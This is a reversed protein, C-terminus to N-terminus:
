GIRVLLRDGNGLDARTASCLAHGVQRRGVVNGRRVSWNREHYHDSGYEATRKLDWATIVYNDRDEASARDLRDTFRIHLREKRAGLEIPADVPGGTFRVRYFGGPQQQNGAWAFMGCVYLHRDTPHFRGRVLGTPFQPIPLECMGGQMQGAIEEHPVVFIKGYGYSLNLLSGALPGWHGAPVWLLEAPSRDFRNTIWCLPQEMAEDSDDTVNHYGFMNGYFRGERVWNIRNKPNWHGEQDTVIFTGDANLCVGNAARFGNAIIDTRQGDRSVRLLTGHHPVIATLAHRASKAYYFNGEADTQLGMAFEHFHETVQHDNNFCRVFDVEGDNDVDELAAIQDRCAVYVTGDVIRVGLPQFLGTVMRTWRLSGNGSTLGSVKWVDGDWSSVAASDGNPFFDFGTPRVRALWPNPTPRTLVDVAFPGEENGTTPATTVAEAFRKPAPTIQEADTRQQSPLATSGPMAGTRQRPSISLKAALSEREQRSALRSLAEEIPTAQQASSLTTFWVTTTLPADGAPITLRLSGDILSWDANFADGQLGVLLFDKSSADDNQGDPEHPETPDNVQPHPSELLVTGGPRRRLRLAARSRQAVQLTLPKARPGFEFHRALVISPSDTLLRPQELIPTTGVRYRLVVQHGQYHLGEYQAWTRPIPGYHRGDRGIVRPAHWDDTGPRAWGPGSKNEVHVTGVIRPHAGHRGDFHIGHFDIFGTGSWAAAMRMTDHDYVMWHRGRTIGGPGPDLRIAIGKYAFNSGDDGIEYTNSLVPGYDMTTWPEMNRPVPGRSTGKPLNALYDPDIPTYESRNHDRLYAERIYHAVDYKQQPVMWSQAQMMGFGRTLTQYISYPDSGNKFRGNAFRLSTPLSGPRDHTGHCNVCLREYIEQGREFSDHDADSIMGSHDIHAEYQPLPRPSYLHPEPELEKASRNGGDRIEILYRTLDLFQQRSTLQNVLGQPMLSSPSHKVEELKSRPLRHLKGPQQPNKLVVTDGDEVVLGVITEGRETIVALTEYGSRIQQSPRLIADVLYADNVRQRWQTLDPGIRERASTADHCSRCAMYPQYFVIAGRRADGLRRADAALQSSPESLLRQELTDAGLPRVSLVSTALLLAAICHLRLRSDDRCLRGRALRGLSSTPVTAM